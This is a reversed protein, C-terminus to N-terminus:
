DCQDSGASDAYVVRHAPFAFVPAGSQRHWLTGGTRPARDPRSHRRLRDARRRHRALTRRHARRRSALHTKSSLGCTASGAREITLGAAMAHGGGKVIIGAGAGCAGCGLDVGCDFPGLRPTCRQGDPLGLVISPLNFREKLRAAALGLVGPHWGEGAVVM